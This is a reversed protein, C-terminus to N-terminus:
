TRLNFAFLLLGEECMIAANERLLLIETCGDVETWSNTELHTKLKQGVILHSPCPPNHVLLYEGSDKLLRQTVRVKVKPSKHPGVGKKGGSIPKWPAVSRM